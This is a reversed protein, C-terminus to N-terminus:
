RWYQDCSSDTPDSCAMWENALQMVDSVGVRCDKDVDGAYHIFEPDGCVVQDFIQWKTIEFGNLVVVRNGNPEAEYEVIITDGDNAVEFGTVHKQVCSMVTETAKTQPINDEILEGNVSVSVDPQAVAPQNHYSTIQYVGAKLGSITLDISSAYCLDNLLLFAPDGPDMVKDELHYVADSAAITVQGAVGFSSNVTVNAPHAEEDAAANLDDYGNGYKNLAPGADVKIAESGAYWLEFGNLVPGSLDAGGADEFSITVGDSESGDVMFGYSAATVGHEPQTGMSQHVGSIVRGASCRYNYGDKITIDIPNRKTGPDAHYTTIFYAGENLDHLKLSFAGNDNYVNDVLLDYSLVGGDLEASRNRVKVGEADNDSLWEIEVGVTGSVGGSVMTFNQNLSNADIVLEAAASMEWSECLGPTQGTLGMDVNLENPDCVAFTNVAILLLSFVAIGAIQGFVPVEVGIKTPKLKKM